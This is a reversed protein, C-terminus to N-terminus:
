TQSCASAGVSEYASNERQWLMGAGTGGAHLAFDPENFLFNAERTASSGLVTSNPIAPLERFHNLAQM